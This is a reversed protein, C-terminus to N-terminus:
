LDATARAVAATAEEAFAAARPANLLEDGLVKLQDAVGHPALRPVDATPAGNGAELALRALIEALQYATESRPRGDAGRARWRTASWRRVRDDLRGLGRELADVNV